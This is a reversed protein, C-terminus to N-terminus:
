AKEAELKSQRMREAQPARLYMPMLSLYDCAEEKKHWALMAAASPRLYALHAPAFIARDGLEQEIAAKFPKVGDGIFCLKQDAPTITLVKTLYDPLKEAMNDLVRVPPMGQTFAAGYVQGARADQIPCIMADTMCVSSALAELADIGICPKGAGHAMGKIASVGIRVGTFSGPGVVAAYLDIDAIDIGARSLAEEVMPMLNVSHTLKNVAAAEYAIEGGQLICVGAVPGSTDIALINM